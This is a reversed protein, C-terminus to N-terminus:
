ASQSQKWKLFAPHDVFLNEGYKQNYLELKSWMLDNRENVPKRRLTQSGFHQVLSMPVIMPPLDIRKLQGILSNDAYWFDFDEDLRGIKEWLERKIMFAWGSLHRGCQWGTENETVDKQRIDNPCKSSVIPYDANILAHLWGNKFLLDNNCFMIWPASGLVAGQNLYANYNFPGHPTHISANKYTLGQKSEVVICNVKLGNAGKVCSNVATQTIKHFNNEGNSIFIIDAVPPGNALRKYRVERLDEQAVTTMDNYDYYYLVRDIKYETKLHDKLLKSYGSDEARKLSPFSVYKSVEKKVCCIHNPLRYYADETNYDAKYDKSYYCIKPANGNLSVEAQFVIVDSDSNTAELLVSIYDDTIRDDCDVFSIYKGSAMEIMLNRKDGLMITKNDILYIIEVQGRQKEPLSELQGYLMELSVPLFTKRRESVSPVLISLRM